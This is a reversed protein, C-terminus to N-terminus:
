RINSRTDSRIDSGIYSEIVAKIDAEVDSVTDLVLDSILDSMLDSIMHDSILDSMQDSTMDSILDSVLVSILDPPPRRSLRSARPGAEAGDRHTLLRPDRPDPVAPGLLVLQAVCAPCTSRSWPRSTSPTHVPQSNGAMSVAHVTVPAISQRRSDIM